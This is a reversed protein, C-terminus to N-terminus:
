RTVKMPSTEMVRNKILIGNGSHIYEPIGGVRSAIVPTGCCLAEACVVSFTEYESCHILAKADRMELSVQHPTLDGM